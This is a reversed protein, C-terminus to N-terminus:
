KPLRIVDASRVESFSYKLKVHLTGDPLLQWVLRGGETAGLAVRLQKPVTTAGTPALNSEFTKM